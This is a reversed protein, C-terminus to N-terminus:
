TGRSPHRPRDFFLHPAIRDFADRLTQRQELTHESVFVRDHRLKLIRHQSAVVDDKQPLASLCLGAHNTREGSQEIFPHRDDGTTFYIIVRVVRHRAM